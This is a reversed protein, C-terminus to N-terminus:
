YEIDTDSHRTILENIAAAIAGLESVSVDFWHSVNATSSAILLAGPASGASSPADSLKTGLSDRLRCLRNMWSNQDSALAILEQQKFNKFVNGNSTNTVEKVVASLRLLDMSLVANCYERVGEEMCLIVALVGARKEHLSDANEATSIYFRAFGLQQRLYSQADIKEM